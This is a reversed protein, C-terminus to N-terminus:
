SDPTLIVIFSKLYNIIFVETFAPTKKHTLTFTTILIVDSHKIQTIKQM